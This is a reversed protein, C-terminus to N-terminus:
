ICRTGIGVQGPVGACGSRSAIEEYSARGEEELWLMQVIWPLSKDSYKLKTPNISCALAIEKGVASIATSATDAKVVRGRGFGGVRVRATFGTIARVAEVFPTNQLLPDV